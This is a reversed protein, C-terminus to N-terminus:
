VDLNQIILFVKAESDDDSDVELRWVTLEPKSFLRTHRATPLLELSPRWCATPERTCIGDMREAGRIVPFLMCKAGCGGSGEVSQKQAKQVMMNTFVGPIVCLLTEFCVHQM